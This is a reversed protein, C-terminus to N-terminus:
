QKPNLYAALFCEGLWASGDECWHVAAGFLASPTNLIGIIREREYTRQSEAAVPDCSVMMLCNLQTELETVRAHLRDIEDESHDGCPVTHHVGGCRPCYPM